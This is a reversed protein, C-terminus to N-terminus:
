NYTMKWVFSVSATKMFIQRVQTSGAMYSGLEQKSTRSITNRTVSMEQLALSTPLRAFTIDVEQSIGQNAIFREKSGAAEWVRSM